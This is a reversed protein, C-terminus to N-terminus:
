FWWTFSDQYRSRIKETITL